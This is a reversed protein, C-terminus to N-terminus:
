SNRMNLSNEISFTEFSNKIRGTINEIKMRENSIAQNYIKRENKDMGRMRNGSYIFLTRFTISM